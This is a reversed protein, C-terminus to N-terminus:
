STLSAWAGRLWGQKWRSDSRPPIDRGAQRPDTRTGVHKLCMGTEQKGMPYHLIYALFFPLTQGILVRVHMHHTLVCTHSHSCTHSCHTHMCTLIHACVHPIHSCMCTLFTHACMHSYYILVHTLIHACTHSHSCTHTLFTFVHAIHSCMCTLFTHPCVHSSHMFMHHSFTLVPTCTHACMHSSHTLVRTLLTHACMRSYHSCM